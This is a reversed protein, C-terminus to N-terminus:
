DSITDNVHRLHPRSVVCLSSKSHTHKNRPGVPKMADAIATAITESYATGARLASGLFSVVLSPLPSPPVGIGALRRDRKDLAADALDNRLQTLRLPRRLM